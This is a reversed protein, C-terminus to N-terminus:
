AYVKKIHFVERIKQLPYKQHTVDKNFDRLEGVRRKTGYKNSVVFLPMVWNTEYVCELM